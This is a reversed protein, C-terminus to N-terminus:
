EHAPSRVSDCENHLHIALESVVQQPLIITRCMSLIECAAHVAQKRAALEPETSCAGAPPWTLASVYARASASNPGFKQVVNVVLEDALAVDNSAVPIIEDFMEGVLLRWVLVLEIDVGALWIPQYM